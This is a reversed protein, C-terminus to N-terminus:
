VGGITQGLIVVLISSPRVEACRKICAVITGGSTAVDELLLIGRGNLIKKHKNDLEYMDLKQTVDAERTSVGVNHRLLATAMPLALFQSLLNALHDNPAFNGRGVYKAPDPPVPVIYDAFQLVNTKKYLYDSVLAALADEIGPVEQNKFHRIARTWKHGPQWPHYKDLFYIECTCGLDPLTQQKPAILGQDSAYELFEGENFYRLQAGGIELRAAFESLYLRDVVSSSRAILQNLLRVREQVLQNSTDHELSKRLYSLSQDLDRQQLLIKAYKYFAGAIEKGDANVFQTGQVADLWKVANGLDGSRLLQLGKALAQKIFLQGFQSM